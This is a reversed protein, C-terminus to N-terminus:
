PHTHPGRDAEAEDELPARSPQAPTSPLEPDTQAAVTEPTSALNHPPRVRVTPQQRPEEPARSALQDVLYRLEDLERALKDLAWDVEAAHYGRLSQRFRLAAVDESTIGTRPLATLTTGPELPPLDESRGFVFWVLAFLVAVIVAMIALYALLTQM